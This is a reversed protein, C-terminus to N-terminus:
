SNPLARRVETYTVPGAYGDVPANVVAQIKKVGNSQAANTAYNIVSVLAAMLFGTVAAPDIHSALTPDHAAVRTVKSVLFRLIFSKM